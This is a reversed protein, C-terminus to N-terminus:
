EVTLKKLYCANIAMTGLDSFHVILKGNAAIGKVEGEHEKTEGYMHFSVPDGVNIVDLVPLEDSM